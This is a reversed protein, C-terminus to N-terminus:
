MINNTEKALRALDEFARILCINKIVSASHPAVRKEKKKKKKKLQVGMIGERM